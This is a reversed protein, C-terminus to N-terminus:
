EGALGGGGKRRGPRRRRMSMCPYSPGKAWHAQALSLFRLRPWAVPLLAQGVGHRAAMGHWKRWGITPGWTLVGAVAALGRACDTVVADADADADAGRQEQELPRPKGHCLSRTPDNVPVAAPRRNGHGRDPGPGDSSPPPCLAPTPARWASSAQGTSCIM